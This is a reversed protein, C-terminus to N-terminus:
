DRPGRVGNVGHVSPQAEQLRDSGTQLRHEFGPAESVGSDDHVAADEGTVLNTSFCIFTM